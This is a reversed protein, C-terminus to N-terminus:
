PIQEPKLTGLAYDLMIKQFLFRYKAQAMDTQAQLYTRNATAFDVFSTVGLNYREQELEFAMKSAELGTLGAAYAKQVNKFYEYANIVDSKVLVETSKTTLKANEYTVKAQVTRYRTQLGNFIPIYLSLGYSNYRNDTLFQQDFDRYAPNSKDAGKLQNYASGNNYFASLSPVYTGRRAKVGFRSAEEFHKAQKLDSRFNAAQELLEDLNPNDIAMANIDWSPESIVTFQTPDIALARFLLNKDTVLQYEAQVVRLEANSVLALQNYEDVPARSGLEVEAKRQEYQVQQVELNEKAIKLLEQDLLTNLYLIAVNNIVDQSSRNVGELGADLLEKSSRATQLGSFGGFIPQTVSLSAQVGDVTANVVTGEQQIFSNGNSRYGSANISAQPGLSAISLAKLVKTEILRNKETQLTVNNRLAIQVAKQFTLVSDSDQGMVLVTQIFLFGTLLFFKTKM